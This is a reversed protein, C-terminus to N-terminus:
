VMTCTASKASPRASLLSRAINATTYNPGAACVVRNTLLGVGAAVVLGQTQKAPHDAGRGQTWGARLDVGRGVPGEKGLGRSGPVVGKDAAGGRILAVAGGRILAVQGKSMDRAVKQIRDMIKVKLSHMVETGSMRRDMLNKILKMETHFNIELRRSRIKLELSHKEVEQIFTQRM